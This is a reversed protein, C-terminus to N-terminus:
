MWRKKSSETKFLLYDSLSIAKHYEVYPITVNGAATYIKVNALEKRRQYPSQSIEVNQLKIIPLTEAKDGFLGGRIMIMKSNHGYKCKKYRFYSTIIFYLSILVGIIILPTQETFYGSIVFPVGILATFFMRRYMFSINVPKMQIGEFAKSGYLAHTVLDIQDQRCGPINISSKNNIAISSAQKLSLQYYGVIKRLLNDSWSIMQIKHDLASTDKKTFLGSSIKFGNKSRWFELGFYKLVTRLLSFLFSLVIFLFVFFGIAIIGSTLPNIGDTYKEPDLGAESLNDWLWWIAFLILGGSRIHNETIGVKVLDSISLKLISEYKDEPESKISGDEVHEVLPILKSKKELILERLAHAQDKAIADFEFEKQSSGATDVKLRLVSFLQHALNEEFNITQIREFPIITKSRGFIGKEVILKDEEIHFYYRFFAAISYLMAIIAVACVFYIIYSGFNSKASKGVFFLILFPFIQRILIRYTKWIIMLIAVYSQRQPITFDFNNKKM